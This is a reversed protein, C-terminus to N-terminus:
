AREEELLGFRAREATWELGKKGAAIYDRICDMDDRLYCSGRDKAGSEKLRREQEETEPTIMRSSGLKPPLKSICEEAKDYEGRSIYVFAAQMPYEDRESIFYQELDGYKEKVDALFGLYWKEIHEFTKEAAATYSDDSMDHDFVLIERHIISKFQITSNARVKDTLRVTSEPDIIHLKLDDFGPYKAEYDINMELKGAKKDENDWYFANLFYPPCMKYLDHQPSAKVGKSKAIDKMAQYIRDKAMHEGEGKRGCGKAASLFAM